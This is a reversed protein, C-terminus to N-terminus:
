IPSSMLAERKWRSAGRESSIGKADGGYFSLVNAHSLFTSDATNLHPGPPNTSNFLCTKCATLLDQWGLAERKERQKWDKVAFFVFVDPLLLAQSLRKKKKKKSAENADLGLPGRQSEAPGLAVWLRNINISPVSRSRVLRRRDAAWM